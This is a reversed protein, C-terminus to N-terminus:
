AQAGLANQLILIQETKIRGHAPNFAKKTEQMNRNLRAVERFGRESAVDALLQANDVAKGRITSNGVVFCAYRNEKLHLRLWDCIVALESKFTEATAGSKSPSSYKRHSGIEERKFKPQDMGLWVMRTMHYLHYSYANPYPPSCVVLDIIGIDPKTLLNAHYVDCQMEQNLARNFESIAEVTNALSRAFRRLTEGPLINKDRRVYRTDSDQKSVAVVIASFAVRAVKKATETPLGDCWALAHALEEIVFPEFWFTLAESQPRPAHSVFGAEDAFLGSTTVSIESALAKARTVLDELSRKDEASLRATKVESILCALPNADIGVAHRGLSLAEILTTGSGCFIDAVHEGPESLEQILSAPIQPIYKAPYPHIGHTSFITKAGVFDWNINRLTQSAFVISM